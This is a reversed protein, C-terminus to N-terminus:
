LNLVAIIALALLVILILLFKEDGTWPKTM